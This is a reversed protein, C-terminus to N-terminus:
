DSQCVRSSCQASGYAMNTDGSFPEYLGFWTELCLSESWGCVVLDGILIRTHTRIDIFISPGDFILQVDTGM